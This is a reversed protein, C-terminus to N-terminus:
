QQAPARHGPQSTFVLPIDATMPDWAWALSLGAVLEKVDYYLHFSDPYFLMEVGDHDRQLAQIIRDRDRMLDLGAGPITVVRYETESLDTIDIRHRNEADVIYVLGHQVIVHASNQVIGRERPLAVRIQRSEHEEEIQAQIRIQRDELSSLQQQRRAITQHLEDIRQRVAALQSNLNDALRDFGEILADAQDTSASRLMAVRERAAELARRNHEHEIQQQHSDPSHQRQLQQHRHQLQMLQLSAERAQQSVAHNGAARDDVEQQYSSQVLLAVLLAILILGGFANCVTDLLLDLSDHKRHRSSM